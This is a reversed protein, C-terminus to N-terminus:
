SQKSPNDITVEVRVKDGIAVTAPKISTIDIRAPSTSGYGLIELATQDGAKIL